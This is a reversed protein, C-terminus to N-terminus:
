ARSTWHPRVVMLSIRRQHVQRRDLAAVLAQVRQVHGRGAPDHVHQQLVRGALGLAVLGVEDGASASSRAAFPTEGVWGRASRIAARPLAQFGHVNFAAEEGDLAQGDLRRSPLAGHDAAVGGHEVLQALVEAAEALLDRGAGEGVRDALVVHAGQEVVVGVEDEAAVAGLGQAQLFVGAAQRDLDVSGSVWVMRSRTSAGISRPSTLWILKPKETRGPPWSQALSSSPRVM